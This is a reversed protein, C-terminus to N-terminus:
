RKGSGHERCHEQVVGQIIKGAAVKLIAAAKERMYAKQHHDRMEALTERQSTKLEVGYIRPM